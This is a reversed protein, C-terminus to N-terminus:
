FIRSSHGRTVTREQRKHVQPNSPCTFINEGPDKGERERRSVGLVVSLRNEQTYNGFFSVLAGHEPGSARVFSISNNLPPCGQHCFSMTGPTDMPFDLGRDKAHVWAALELREALLM